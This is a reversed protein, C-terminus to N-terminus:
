GRVKGWDDKFRADGSTPLVRTHHEGRSPTEWTIAGNERV